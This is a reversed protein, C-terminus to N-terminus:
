ENSVTASRSYSCVFNGCLLGSSKHTSIAGILLGLILCTVYSKKSSNKQSHGFLKISTIAILILFLCAAYESLPRGLHWAWVFFTTWSLFIVLASLGHSETLLWTLWWLFFLTPIIYYLNVVNIQKIYKPTTTIQVIDAHDKNVDTFMAMHAALVAIPLPERFHSQSVGDMSIVGSSMLHYAAITNEKADKVIPNSSPIKSYTLASLILLFLIMSFNSVLHKTSQSLKFITM